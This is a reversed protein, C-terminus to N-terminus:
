RLHQEQWERAFYLGCDKIYKYFEYDNECNVIFEYSPRYIRMFTDLAQKQLGTIKKVLLKNFRHDVYKDHEQEILRRQLAMMQRDKRANFLMDLNFGGSGSFASEPEYEFVRRYEERNDL